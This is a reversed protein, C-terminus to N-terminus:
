ERVGPGCAYWDSARRPAAPRQSRGGLGPGDASVRATEPVVVAGRRAVAIWSGDGSASPVPRMESRALLFEAAECAFVVKNVTRVPDGGYEHGLRRRTLRIASLLVFVFPEGSFQPLSRREVADGYVIKCM